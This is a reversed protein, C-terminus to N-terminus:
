KKYAICSIEILADLPLKGIQMAQRAPKIPHSFFDAYITNMAQFDKLDKLYVETKVVHILSLSAKDLIAQINKLVQTTQGEITTDIIVGQTPEIPIQGSVFLFDGASIAQSYPGIAKPAKTTEIKQMKM